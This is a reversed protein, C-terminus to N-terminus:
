FEKFINAKTHLLVRERWNNQLLSYYTNVYIHIYTYVFNMFSSEQTNRSATYGKKFYVQHSLMETYLFVCM